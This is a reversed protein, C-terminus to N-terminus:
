GRWIPGQGGTQVQRHAVRLCPRYKIIFDLEEETFGYHRALIKDIEDIM